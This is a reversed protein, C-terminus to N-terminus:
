KLNVIGKSRISLVLVKDKGLVPEIYNKYEEVYKEPLFVQITGAFGGGHVRCAGANKEEIFQETLALSLSVSQEKVNTTSYINQLWKFSSNGSENILDLFEIFNNNSLSNALKTVRKNENIFHIARLIARDGVKSRLVKTNKQLTEIDIERCIESDLIKAVSKMEEPISAYDDTLDDHNEGTDVILLKYGQSEFDYNIKKVIPNESDKFDISVIGGVACAMQDMLGCPKEFYKNEAFQGIKAIMSPPIQNNNYLQNFVSGIAVEISASSSLGSGLKVDSTLVGNFGGIKYGHKIFGAAIGRIM